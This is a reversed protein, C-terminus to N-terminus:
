CVSWYPGPTAYHRPWRGCRLVPGGGAAAGHCRPCRRYHVQHGHGGAATRGATTGAGLHPGPLRQLRAGVTGATRLGGSGASLGGTFGGALHLEGAADTALAVGQLGSDPAGDSSLISRWQVQGQGDFRAIAVRSTDIGNSPLAQGALTGTGLYLGVTAFGTGAAVLGTLRNAYSRSNGGNSLGSSTQERAWQVAGTAPDLGAIFAGRQPEPPSTFALAPGGSGAARLTLTGFFEGIAGVQGTTPNVELRKINAFGEYPSAPLPSM